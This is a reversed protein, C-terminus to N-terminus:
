DEPKAYANNITRYIRAQRVLVALHRRLAPTQAESLNLASRIDDIELAGESEWPIVEVIQDWLELVNAFLEDHGLAESIAAIMDDARHASPGESAQLENTDATVRGVVITNDQTVITVFVDRFLEFASTM